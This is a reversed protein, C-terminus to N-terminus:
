HRYASINAGFALGGWVLRAMCERYLLVASKILASQYVKKDKQARQPITPDDEETMGFSQIEAKGILNRM